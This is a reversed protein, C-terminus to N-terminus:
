RNKFASMKDYDCELNSVGFDDLGSSVYIHKLITENRTLVQKKVANQFVPLLM